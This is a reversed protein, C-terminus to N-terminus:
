SAGHHLDFRRPLTGFSTFTEGECSLPDADRDAAPIIFDSRSSAGLAAYTEFVADSMVDFYSVLRYGGPTVIGVAVDSNGEPGAHTGLVEGAAVSKGLSLPVNPTIHFITVEVGPFETSAVTLTTGRGENSWGAVTGDIPSAIAITSWDVSPLPTFYHKMSRCTEVEDVFDHGESSRFLSVWEIAAPEIYDAEVLTPLGLEDLDYSPWPSTSMTVTGETVQEPTELVFTGTFTTSDASIALVLNLSLPVSATLRVNAGDTSGAGSLSGRGFDLTFSVSTGTQELSLTYGSVGGLVLYYRGTVDVNRETTTAPGAAGDPAETTAPPNPAAPGPALTDVGVATPVAGSPDARPACGVIVIALLRALVAFSRM